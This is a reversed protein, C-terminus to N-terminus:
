RDVVLGAVDLLHRVAAVGVAVVAVFRARAALCAAPVLLVVDAPLCRKGGWTPVRRMADLTGDMWRNCASGDHLWLSPVAQDAPAEDAQGLPVQEPPRPDDPRDVCGVDLDVATM